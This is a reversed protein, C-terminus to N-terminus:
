ETPYQDGWGCWGNRKNRAFLEIRTEKPYMSEIREYVEKPKESHETKAAFITQVVSEDELHLPRGTKVSSAALIFETLPKIISPRIGQAKIPTGDLKTKIWVFAMGRYYLGWSRICDIAFDLRPSTAWLFLIAREELINKVPFTLLEEDSMTKYFKAAATWKDQQGYYSWPPDLLVISFKEKPLELM